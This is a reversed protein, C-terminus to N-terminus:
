FGPCSPESPEGLEILKQLTQEDASIRLGGM